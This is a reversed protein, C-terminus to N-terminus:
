VINDIPSQSASVGVSASLPSKCSVPLSSTKTNSTSVSFQLAKSAFQTPPRTSLTSHTVHVPKSLIEVELAKHYAEDLTFPSSFTM